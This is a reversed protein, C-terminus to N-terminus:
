STNSLRLSHYSLIGERNRCFCDQSENNYSEFYLERDHCALRCTIDEQEYMKDVQVKAIVLAAAQVLTVLIVAIIAYSIKPKM